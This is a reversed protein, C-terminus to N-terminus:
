HNPGALLEGFSEKDQKVCSKSSMGYAEYQEATKWCATKMERNEVHPHM